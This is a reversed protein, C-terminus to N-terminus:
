RSGSRGSSRGKKKQLRSVTGSLKSVARSYRKPDTCVEDARLLTDVDERTQWKSQEQDVSATASDKSM